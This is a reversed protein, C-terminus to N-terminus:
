KPTNDNLRNLEDIIRRNVESEADFFKIRSPMNQNEDMVNSRFESPIGFLRAPWKVAEFGVNHGLEHSAVEAIRLNMTEVNHAGYKLHGLLVLSTNNSSATIGLINTQFSKNTTRVNAFGLLAVGKPANKQIADIQQKSLTSADKFIVNKVGAKEFKECIAQQIKAMNEKLYQKQEPKLDKAEFTYIVLDEGKPDIYRIPNNQVYSYHNWRQPETLWEKKAILIDTSLFRCTLECYSRSNFNVLHSEIDKPKGTFLVSEQTTPPTIIEGYPMLDYYEQTVPSFVGGSETFV